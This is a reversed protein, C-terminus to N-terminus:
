YGWPPFRFAERSNQVACYYSVVGDTQRETIAELRGFLNGGPISGM